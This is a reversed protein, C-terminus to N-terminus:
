FQDRMSGSNKDDRAIWYSRAAPDAKLHLPDKGLLKFILATPTVTIFFILGMVVPSVIRGLLLGFKFWLLNLPKLIAPAAFALVVFAAAVILAWWRPSAGHILPWLAIVSFVGAFVLGFGGESGATVADHEDIDIM